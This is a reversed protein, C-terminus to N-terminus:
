DKRPAELEAQVHTLVATLPRPALELPVAAAMAAAYREKNGSRAGMLRRLQEHLTRSRQAPQRQLTRFSRLDGRAEVIGEVASIPLACTQVGTM